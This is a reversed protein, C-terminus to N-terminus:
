LFWIKIDVYGYIFIGDSLCHSKQLVTFSPLATITQLNNYIILCTARQVLLNHRLYFRLNHTAFQVGPFAAIYRDLILIKIQLFLLFLYLATSAGISSINTKICYFKRKAFIRNDHIMSDVSQSSKIIMFLFRGTTVNRPCKGTLSYHIAFFRGNM